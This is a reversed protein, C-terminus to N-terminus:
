GRQVPPSCSAISADAGSRVAPQDSVRTRHRLERWVFDPIAYSYRLPSGIASRLVLGKRELGAVVPDHIADFFTQENREAQDTLLERESTNLTNLRALIACRQRWGTIRATSLEWVRGLWLSSAVVAVVVFVARVWRPLVDLYLLEFQALAFVAWCGVAVASFTSARLDLARLWGSDPWWSMALQYCSWARHVLLHGSPPKPGTKARKDYRDNDCPTTPSTGGSARSPACSRQQM